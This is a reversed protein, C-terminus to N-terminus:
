LGLLGFLTQVIAQLLPLGIILIVLKGALEIVASIAAEGAEQSVQVGFSTVYAVGITKLVPNLYFSGISGERALATLAQVVSAVEPMLILLVVGTFAVALLVAWSPQEERFEAQFVTLAIGVGVVLPLWLM